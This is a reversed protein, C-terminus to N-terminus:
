MYNITHDLKNHGRCGEMALPLSDSTAMALPLQNLASHGPASNITSTNKDPINRGRLIATLIKPELDIIYVLIILSQTELHIAM